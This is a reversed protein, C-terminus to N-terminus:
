IVDPVMRAFRRYVFATAALTMVCVAVFGICVEADLFVWTKYYLAARFGEVFFAIPNLDFFVRMWPVPFSNINFIVGSVWFLPMSIVSVLHSVDKSIAGLISLMCALMDWFLLMLLLLIPLQLLYVDLGMGSAFYIIMLVGVLAVQVIMSATITISTICSLPFRVSTALDSKRKMASSGKTLAERMFMWPIIGCSLWLFYPPLGEIASNNAGRLGLGIAFWFCM